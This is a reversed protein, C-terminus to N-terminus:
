AAALSEVIQELADSLARDHDFGGMHAIDGFRALAAAALQSERDGAAARTKLDDIWANRIQAEM